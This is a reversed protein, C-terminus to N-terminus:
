SGSPTLTLKPTEYTYPLMQPWGLKTMTLATAMIVISKAPLPEAYWIPCCPVCTYHGPQRRSRITRVHYNAKLSLYSRGSRVRYHSCSYGWLYEIGFLKFFFCLFDSDASINRSFHVSSVGSIIVSFFGDVVEFVRIFRYIDFKEALRIGVWSIPNLNDRSGRFFM